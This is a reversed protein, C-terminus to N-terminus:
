GAALDSNFMVTRVLWKGNSQKRLFVLQKGTDHIEGVGEALITISIASTGVALDGSGEVQVDTFSAARIEPYGEIYALLAARGKVTPHNPPMEMGDEEFVDAWAQFDGNQLSRAATEFLARIAAVDESTLQDPM